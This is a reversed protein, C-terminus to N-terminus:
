RRSVLAGALIGIGLGAAGSLLINQRVDSVQMFAQGLQSRLDEGIGLLTVVRVYQGAIEGFVFYGVVLGAAGLVLAFTVIKSM